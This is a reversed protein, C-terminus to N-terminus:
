RSAKAFLQARTVLEDLGAPDLRNSSAIGLRKGDLLRLYLTTNHEHVNQHITNKAFRTLASDTAVLIVEAAQSGCRHLVQEILKQTDERNEM